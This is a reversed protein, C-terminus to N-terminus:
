LFNQHPQEQKIRWLIKNFPHCRCNPVCKELDIRAKAARRAEGLWVRELPQELVNGFSFEGMGRSHCCITLRGTATVVGAFDIGYCVAYERPEGLDDYKAPLQVSFSDSSLTVVNPDIQTFDWHYPRFQIYDFGAERVMRCAEEATHMTKQDILYGAGLTAKARYRGLLHMNRVVRALARGDMGHSYSYSEADAGDLSVRCWTAKECILKALEATMVSGNTIVGIDFGLEGAYALIDPFGPHLLPEGGGTFIVAKAGFRRLQGLIHKAEDGTLQADPPRRGGACRPCRHNCRNTLDLEWTIPQTWGHELWHAIRGPHKLIKDGAFIRAM